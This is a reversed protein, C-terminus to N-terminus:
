AYARALLLMLGIYGVILWLSHSKLARTVPVGMMSGTMSGNTRKSVSEKSRFGLLKLAYCLM